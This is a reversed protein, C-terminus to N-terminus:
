MDENDSEPEPLTVTSCLLGKCEGCAPSCELGHKRCSCRLTGCDAKCNCNIAELLNDPAPKLDTHVPVMMGNNTKWGWDEARLHVGSWEQVQHYVRQSHYKASSSTPPLIRPQVCVTSSAVKQHFRQLRLTDLREDEQGNYLCVLANEGATVIDDQTSLPRKFVAAQRRFFASSKLKKLAVPKGISVVRSTTDCGLIAHAFLLNDCM